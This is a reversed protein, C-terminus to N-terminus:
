HDHMLLSLRGELRLLAPLNEARESLLNRLPELATLAIEREMKGMMWNENDKLRNTSSSVLSVLVTRIWFALQDARSPKKALRTVLKSLLMVMVKEKTHKGGTSSSSFSMISNQIIYRDKVHLAIELKSDDNSTLAQYLLNSLSSSTAAKSNFTDESSVLATSKKTDDDDEDETDHHMEASLRKLREAITGTAESKEGWDFDDDDDDNEDDEGEKKTRKSTQQKEAILLAESGTEGPGLVIAKNAVSAKRKKSDTAGNEASVADKDNVKVKLQIDGSHWDDNDDSFPEDIVIVDGSGTQMSKISWAMVRVTNGSKFTADLLSLSSPVTLTLHPSDVKGQKKKENAQIKYLAATNNNRNTNLISYTHDKMHRICFRPEYRNINVTGVCDGDEVRFVVLDGDNGNGNKTIGVLKDDDSFMARTNLDNNNEDDAQKIKIKHVRKGTRANIVFLRNGYRIAIMEYSSSVAIASSPTAGEGEEDIATIKIKKRIKPTDDTLDYEHVILRQNTQLLCFMKSHHPSTAVDLMKQPETLNGYELKHFLVGRNLDWLFVKREENQSCGILFQGDKAAFQLNGLVDDTASASLTCKKTGTLTEYCSVAIRRNSNNIRPVSYTALYNPCSTTVINGKKSGNSPLTSPNATM